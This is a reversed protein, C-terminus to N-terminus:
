NGVKNLVRRTEWGLERRTWKAPIHKEEFRKGGRVWTRWELGGCQIEWRPCFEEEKPVPGLPGPQCTHPEGGLAAHVHVRQYHELRGGPDNEDQGTTSLGWGKRIMEFPKM